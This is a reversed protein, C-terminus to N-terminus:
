MQFELPLTIDALRKGNWDRARPFHIDIEHDAREWDGGHPRPGAPEQYRSNRLFQNWGGKTRPEALGQEIKSWIGGYITECLESWSGSYASLYEWLHAETPWLTRDTDPKNRDGPIFGYLINCESPSLQDYWLTDAHRADLDGKRHVTVQVSPGMMLDAILEEGRFLRSIWSLPGGRYIAARAHPRLLVKTAAARWRAVFDAAGKTWELESDHEIGNYLHGVAYDAETVIPPLFKQLDADPYGIAFRLGHEIAWSLITELTADEGQLIAYLRLRVDTECSRVQLVGYELVVPNWVCDAGLSPPTFVPFMPKSWARASDTWEKHALLHWDPEADHFLASDVSSESPAGAGATDGTGHAEPSSLRQALSPLIPTNYSTSLRSALSPRRDPNADTGVGSLVNRPYPDPRRAERSSARSSLIDPHPSANRGYPSRTTLVSYRALHPHQPSSVPRPYEIEGREKDYSRGSHPAYQFQHLARIEHVPHEVNDVAMSTSGDSLPRPRFRWYLIVRDTEIWLMRAYYKTRLARKVNIDTIERRKWGQFDCVFVRRADWEPGPRFGDDVFSKLGNQLFLDYDFIDPFKDSLGPVDLYREHTGPLSDVYGWYARNYEPSLRQFRPNKAETPTWAYVVPVDLSVLKTLDVSEWDRTLDILFGRKVTLGLTWRNIREIIDGPLGTDWHAFMEKFWWVFALGDLMHRKLTAAEEEAAHLSPYVANAVDNTFAIPIPNGTPYISSDRIAACCEAISQLDEICARRWEANFIYGRQDDRDLWALGWATATSETFWSHVNDASLGPICCRWPTGPRFWDIERSWELDLYQGSPGTEKSYQEVPVDKLARAALALIQSTKSLHGWTFDRDATDEFRPRVFDGDSDLYLYEM